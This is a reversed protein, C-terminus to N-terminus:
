YMSTALEQTVKSLELFFLHSISVNIISQLVTRGSETGNGFGRTSFTCMQQSQFSIHLEKLIHDYRYVYLYTDFKCKKYLYYKSPFHSFLMFPFQALFHM